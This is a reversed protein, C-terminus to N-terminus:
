LGSVFIQTTVETVKVKSRQGQGKAHVKGQDLTIVGSFKMIICHHSCLWFPTVSPCVSLFYWEHLQKTAALFTVWAMYAAQSLFSSQQGRVINMRQIVVNILTANNRILVMPNFIYGETSQSLTKFNECATKVFNSKIISKNQQGRPIFKPTISNIFPWIEIIQIHCPKSKTLHQLEKRFTAMACHPTFHWRLEQFIRSVQLSFCKHNQCLVSARTHNINKWTNQSM